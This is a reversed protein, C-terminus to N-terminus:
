VSLKEFLSFTNNKIITDLMYEQGIDVPMRNKILAVSELCEEKSLNRALGGAIIAIWEHLISRQM